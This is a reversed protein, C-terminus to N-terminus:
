FTRIKDEVGPYQCYKTLDSLLCAYLTIVALAVKDIKPTTDKNDKYLVAIFMGVAVNVLDLQTLTALVATPSMKFGTEIFTMLDKSLTEKTTTDISYSTKFVSLFTADIARQMYESNFLSIIDENEQGSFFHEHDLANIDDELMAVCIHVQTETTPNLKWINSKGKGLSQLNLMGKKELIALHKIIPKKESLGKTEKLWDRIKKEEIGDPYAMLFRIIAAQTEGPPYGQGAGRDEARETM